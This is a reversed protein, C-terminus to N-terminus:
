WSTSSTTKGSRDRSSRASSTPLEPVFLVDLQPCDEFTLEPIIRVGEFSTVADLTAAVLHLVIEPAYTFVQYPGLVDLSDFTPYIPIGIKLKTDNEKKCDASADAM